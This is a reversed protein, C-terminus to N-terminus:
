AQLVVVTTELPMDKANPRFKAVPEPSAGMESTFKALNDQPMAYKTKGDDYHTPIVYKPELTTVIQTAAIADLTLGHGGVPVILIDVRGLQEVQENSLGAAVNGLFVVKVGDLDIAYITGRSGAAAPDADVHLRAPVGVILASKVEYEGPGDITMIAGSDTKADSSSFLAVDAPPKAKAAAPPPDCWVTLHKGGLKVGGAGLYTIDM